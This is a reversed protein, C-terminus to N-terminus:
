IIGEDAFSYYGYESVIIHDLVKIDLFRAAEKIKLTLEEDARSPKISGSPHNHCLILSVAEEELAKKLIIRPDAVTGTIGGKSIIEFHNVRNARNLFVVGFVEQAYDKLMAQLYRAMDGSDKVLLKELSVGSQRRRGLELAAVLTAAKAEGVGKVQMMEKVTLKGLEQLNNKSLLMLERGLELASRKPTGSKFLIAILEADSLAAASRSLLKERPRDDSAWQKISYNQAQM